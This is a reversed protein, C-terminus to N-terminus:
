GNLREAVLGLDSALFPFLNPRRRAALPHYSVMAPLGAYVHWRGRASRLEVSPGLLEKAVVEGLLVVIRPASMSLQHELYPLCAARAAQKDYARTPRCKLLYTVYVDSAPLGAAELAAGLTLRTGCTFPRGAADERAGPNDLLILIPATPNGEAWIIRRRQNALACRRCDRALHPVPLEPLRAM